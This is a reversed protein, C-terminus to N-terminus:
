EQEHEELRTMREDMNTQQEQGTQSGRSAITEGVKEKALIAAEMRLIWVRKDTLSGEGLVVPDVLLLHQHQALLEDPDTYM